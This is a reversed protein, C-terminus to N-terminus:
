RMIAQKLIESIDNLAEERQDSDPLAKFLKMTEVIDNVEGNDRLDDLNVINVNSSYTLIEGDKVIILSEMNENEELNNYNQTEIYDEDQDDEFESEENPESYNENHEYEQHNADDESDDYDGNFAISNNSYDSQVEIDDKENEYVVSGEPSHNSEPHMPIAASQELTEPQLSEEQDHYQESEFNSAIDSVRPPRTLTRPKNPITRKSQDIPTEEQNGSKKNGWPPVSTSFGSPSM